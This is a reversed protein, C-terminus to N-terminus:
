LIMFDEDYNSKLNVSTKGFFQKKQYDKECLEFFLVFDQTDDMLGQLRGKLDEITNDTAYTEFISKQIRIAFSQMCKAIKVLRKPDRIDYVILYHKEKM